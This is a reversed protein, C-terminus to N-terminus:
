GEFGNKKGWELWAARDAKAKKGVPEIPWFYGTPYADLDPTPISRRLHAYHTADKRLLNVRHSALFLKDYIWEPVDCDSFNMSDIKETLSHAREKRANYEVCLTLAYEQLQFEHGRWMLCAPHNSNPLRGTLIQYAEIIQKNLRKDDLCTASAAYSPFPLFTQM